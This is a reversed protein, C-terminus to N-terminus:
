SALYVLDFLSRRKVAQKSQLTFTKMKRSLIRERALSLRTIQRDIRNLSRFLSQERVFFFRRSVWLEGIQNMGAQGGTTTNAIIAKTQPAVPGSCLIATSFPAGKATFQIRDNRLEKKDL